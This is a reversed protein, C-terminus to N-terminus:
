LGAFALEDQMFMLDYWELEHSTQDPIEVTFSTAAVTESAQDMSDEPIVPMLPALSITMIAVVALLAVSSGLPRQTFVLSLGSWFGQGGSKEKRKNQNSAKQEVVDITLSQEMGETETLIRQQLASSNPVGARKIAFVDQETMTANSKNIKLKTM